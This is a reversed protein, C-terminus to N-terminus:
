LKHNMDKVQRAVAVYMVVMFDDYISQDLCKIRNSKAASPIM